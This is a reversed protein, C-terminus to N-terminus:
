GTGSTTSRPTTWEFHYPHDPDVRLLGKRKSPTATFSGRHRQAGFRLEYRYAGPTAAYFRIKHLAGDPADAFGDVKLTTGQPTTLTGTLAFQTFPNASSGPQRVVAEVFDGAEIM